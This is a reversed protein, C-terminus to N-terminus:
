WRFNDKGDGNINVTNLSLEVGRNMVEGANFKAESFGTMYPLSRNLLMDNTKSKYVDISGSIRGDLFGFDLGFNGTKTTAWTLEENALSNQYIYLSSADYWTYGSAVTALTAYAEISQNGTLGYSGRLKLFSLGPIVNQMFDEQSLTWAASVGPFNAWKSGKAFGSFGDRRFNATLYYKNAYNYNVRAMYGVNQWEKLTKNIQQTTAM